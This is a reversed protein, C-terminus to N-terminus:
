PNVVNGYVVVDCTANAVANATVNVFLVASVNGNMTTTNAKNSLTLDQYTGTGTINTLTQSNAWLNAGDNSYGVSITTTNALASPNQVNIGRIIVQGSTASSGSGTLGGDLLPMAVVANAVTGLSVGRASAVVYQNFHLPTRAGVRNANSM